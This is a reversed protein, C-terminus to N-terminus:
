RRGIWECSVCIEWLAGIDPSGQALAARVRDTVETTSETM